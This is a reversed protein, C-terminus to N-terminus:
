LFITFNVQPCFHDLKVYLNWLPLHLKCPRLWVWFKPPPSNQKSFCFKQLQNEETKHFSIPQERLWTLSYLVVTTLTVKRFNVYFQRLFFLNTVWKIRFRYFGFTESSKQCFTRGTIYFLELWANWESGTQAERGASVCALVTCFTKRYM